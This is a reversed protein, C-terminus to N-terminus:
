AILIKLLVQVSLISFVCIGKVSLDIRTHLFYTAVGNSCAGQHYVRLFLSM